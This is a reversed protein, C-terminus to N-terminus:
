TKLHILVVKLQCVVVQKCQIIRPKRVLNGSNLENHITHNELKIEQETLNLDPIIINNNEDPLIIQEENSTTSVYVKITPSISM